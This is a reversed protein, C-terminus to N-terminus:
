NTSIEFLMIRKADEFAEEEDCMGRYPCDECEKLKSFTEQSGTLLDDLEFLNGKTDKLLM